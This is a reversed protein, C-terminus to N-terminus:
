LIREHETVTYRLGKMTPNDVMYGDSDEIRAMNVPKWYMDSWLPFTADGKTYYDLTSLIMRDARKMFAQYVSTGGIVWIGNASTDRSAVRAKRIAEKPDSAVIVGEPLELASNSSIVVNTRNPLPKGISEYTKRGMIVVGGTTLRKFNRLDSPLHWPLKGDSGIVGNQSQAAIITILCM